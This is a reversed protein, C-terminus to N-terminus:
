PGTQISSDSSYAGPYVQDDEFRLPVSLLARFQKYGAKDPFFAHLFMIPEGEPTTTVSPHGPALWKATSRLIPTSLKNYPGLPSEAIGVGIGYQATSFDNGAYFLYYKEKHKTVWMGEVLHAEWDLDNELIKTTEGVFRTGDASLQRAFMPTRMFRMVTRLAEGNEKGSAALKGLRNYVTTFEATVAEIFVQTFLFRVMPELTKLWPWLTVILSATVQDEQVTFLQRILGPNGYLAEILAGPWVDNNDAKWFLYTIQDDQIYIHPDIVNGDLLPVPEATFPGGPKLSKALGICLEHSVKHRAVFYVRFEKGVQHMEPAWFDSIHEGDAAWEPKNGEPFVYDVFTWDMLNESRIIPFSSASDNSTSVLYYCNRGNEQTRIIAPDGYGYTMGEALNELLVERYNVQFTPQVASKRNQPLRLGFDRHLEQFLDLYSNHDSDDLNYSYRRPELVKLTYRCRHALREAALEVAFVFPVGAPSSFHLVTNDPPQPRVEM